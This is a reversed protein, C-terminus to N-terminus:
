ALLLLVLLIHIFACCFECCAVLSPRRARYSWNPDANKARDSRTGLADTWTTSELSFLRHTRKPFILAVRCVVQLNIKSEGELCRGERWAVVLCSAVVSPVNRRTSWCRCLSVVICCWLSAVIRRGFLAVIFLPCVVCSLSTVRRGVLLLSAHIM